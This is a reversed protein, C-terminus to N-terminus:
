VKWVIARESDNKKKMAFIENRIRSQTDREKKIEIQELWETHM